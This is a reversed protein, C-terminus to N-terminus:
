LLKNVHIAAAMMNSGRRAFIGLWNLGAAALETVMPLLFDDGDLLREEYNLLLLNSFHTDAGQVLAFPLSVVSLANPRPAFAAHAHPAEDWRSPIFELLERHTLRTLRTLCALRAM